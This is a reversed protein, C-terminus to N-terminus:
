EIVGQANSVYLKKMQKVYHNWALGFSIKIVPACILLGVIIVLIKM